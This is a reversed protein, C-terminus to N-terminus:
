LSFRIKFISNQRSTFISMKLYQFVGFYRQEDSKLYCQGRIKFILEGTVTDLGHLVSASIHYVVPIKQFNQRIWSNSPNLQRKSARSEALSAIKTECFKACNKSFHRGFLSSDRWKIGNRYNKWKHGWKMPGREIEGFIVQCTSKIRWM